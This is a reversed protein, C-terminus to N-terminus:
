MYRDRNPGVPVHIRSRQPTSTPYRFPIKNHKKHPQHSQFLISVVLCSRAISVVEFNILFLVLVRKKSKIEQQYTGSDKSHREPVVSGNVDCLLMVCLASFIFCPVDRYM